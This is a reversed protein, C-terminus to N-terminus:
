RFAAEEPAGERHAPTLAGAPWLPLAVTSLWIVKWIMEFLLIPILKLPYRVGLFFLLSQAVGM